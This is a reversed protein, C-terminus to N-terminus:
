KTTQGSRKRDAVPIVCKVATLTASFACVKVDVLGCEFFAARVEAEKITKGGKPYVIWVAGDPHIADRWESFRLDAVTKAGAFVIDSDKRRRESIDAGRGEVEAVFRDDAIDIASIRMGPKVGLKDLRSPPNLIKDAWKEAADGLSLVLSEKGFEITLAGKAAKASRIEERPIKVRFPGRFLLYDTEWMARGEGSQKGYRANCNAELGM